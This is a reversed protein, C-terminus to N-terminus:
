FRHPILSTPHGQLGGKPPKCFPFPLAAHNASGDLFWNAANLNHPSCVPFADLMEFDVIRLLARNRALKPQIFMLGFEHNLHHCSDIGM